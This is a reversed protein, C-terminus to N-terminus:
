DTENMENYLRDLSEIEATKNEGDACFWDLAHFEGNCYKENYLENMVGKKCERCRVVPVADVTPASCLLNLFERECEHQVSKSMRYNAEVKDYIANADILRVESM